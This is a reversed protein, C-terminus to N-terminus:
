FDQIWFKGIKNSFVSFRSLKKEFKEINKMIFKKM